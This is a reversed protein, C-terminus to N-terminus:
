MSKVRVILSFPMHVSHARLENVRLQILDMSKNCM